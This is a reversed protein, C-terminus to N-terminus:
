RAFRIEGDIFGLIVNSKRLEVHLNRFIPYQAPSAREIGWKESKELRLQTVGLLM